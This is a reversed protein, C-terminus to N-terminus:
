SSQVQRKIEESGCRMCKDGEVKKGCKNCRNIWRIKEDVGDSMYPRSSVELWKSLNLLDFDDTILISDKEMALALLKRDTKSIDAGIDEEVSKVNRVKDKHPEVVEIEFAELRRRGKSSVVEEKVEPVTLLVDGPVSSSRLIVNTDLVVDM